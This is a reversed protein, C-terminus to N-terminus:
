VRFPWIGKTEKREKMLIWVVIFILNKAKREKRKQTMMQIM